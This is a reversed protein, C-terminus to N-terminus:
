ILFGLEATQVVELHSCNSSISGVKTPLKADSSLVNVVQLHSKSLLSAWHKFDRSLCKAAGTFKRLTVLERHPKLIDSMGCGPLSGLFWQPELNPDEEHSPPPMAAGKYDMALVQSPKTESAM